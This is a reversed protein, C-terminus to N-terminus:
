NTLLEPNEYINWIIQLTPEQYVTTPINSGKSKLLFQWMDFYVESLDNCLWLQNIQTEVVDGEYIPTWQKDYLWTFQLYIIWNDWNKCTNDFWVDYLMKWSELDFANFKITRM